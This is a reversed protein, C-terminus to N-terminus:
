VTTTWTTNHLRQSRTLASPQGFRGPLFLRWHRKLEQVPGYTWRFRQKRYGTCTEPILGRGYPETLYLSDYGAAHV